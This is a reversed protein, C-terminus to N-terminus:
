ALRSHGYGTTWAAFLHGPALWLRIVHLPRSWCPSIATWAVKRKLTKWVRGCCNRLGLNWIALSWRQIWLLGPSGSGKLVDAYHLDYNVLLNAGETGLQAALECAQEMWRKPIPRGAQEWRESLTSCINQAVSRLSRFGSPAPIALRRLLRGAVEVAEAIGVDCLSRRHDLRELLMAGWEPLHDLLRAAGQGNWASLALAEHITSEDAWSVKLVCPEEFLRVPIVLGLYGHMVPGDITLNWHQCLKEVLAPLAQIWERGVDGERMVTASAFDAPVTIM